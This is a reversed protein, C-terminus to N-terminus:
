WILSDKGLNWDVTASVIRTRLNSQSQQEKDFLWCHCSNCSDRALKKKRVCIHTTAQFERLPTHSTYDLTLFYKNKTVCEFTFLSNRLVSHVTTVCHWKEHSLFEILTHCVPKLLKGLQQKRARRQKKHSYQTCHLLHYLKWGWLFSGLLLCACVRVTVHVYMCVYVCVYTYTRTCTCTNRWMGWLTVVLHTHAAKSFEDVVFFHNTVFRSQSKLM